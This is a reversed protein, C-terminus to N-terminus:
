LLRLKPPRENLGPARSPPFVRNSIEFPSPVYGRATPNDQLPLAVNPATCVADCIGAEASGCHYEICSARGADNAQMMEGHHMAHDHMVGMRAAHASTAMSFVALALVTLVIVLRSVMSFIYIRGDTDEM